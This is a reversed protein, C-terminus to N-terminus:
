KTSTFDHKRPETETKTTSLTNQLTLFKTSYENPQEFFRHDFCIMIMPKQAVLRSNTGKRLLNKHIIPYSSSYVLLRDIYEVDEEANENTDDELEDFELETGNAFTIFHAHHRIKLEEKREEPPPTTPAPDSPPYDQEIPSSTDMDPPSVVHQEYLVDDEEDDDYMDYVPKKPTKKKPGTKKKTPKEYRITSNMTQKLLRTADERAIEALAEFGIESILNPNATQLSEKIAQAEM